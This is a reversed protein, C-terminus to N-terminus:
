ICLSESPMKVEINKKLLLYILEFKIQQFKKTHKIFIM